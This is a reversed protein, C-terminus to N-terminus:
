QSCLSELVVWVEDKISVNACYQLLHNLVVLVPDATSPTVLSHFGFQRCLDPSRKILEQSVHFITAKRLSKMLTELEQALQKSVSESPLVQRFPSHVVTFCNDASTALIINEFAFSIKDGTALQETAFRTLKTGNLCTLGSGDKIM